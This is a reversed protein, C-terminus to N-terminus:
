TRLRDVVIEPSPKYISAAEMAERTLGSAEYIDAEIQRVVDPSKNGPEM